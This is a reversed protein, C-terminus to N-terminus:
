PFDVWHVSPLWRNTSLRFNPRPDASRFYFCLFDPFRLAILTATGPNRRM